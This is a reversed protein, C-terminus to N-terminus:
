KHSSARYKKLGGCLERGGNFVPAPRRAPGEFSQGDRVVDYFYLKGRDDDASEARSQRRAAEIVAATRTALIIDLRHGPRCLLRLRSGGVTAIASTRM